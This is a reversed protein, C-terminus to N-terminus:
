AQSAVMQAGAHALNKERGTSEATPTPDLDMMSEAWALENSGDSPAVGYHSEVAAMHAEHPDVSHAYSPPVFQAPQAIPHHFANPATVTIPTIPTSASHRVAHRDQSPFSSYSSRGFAFPQTSYSRQTPGDSHHAFVPKADRSFNDLLHSPLSSRRLAIRTEEDLSPDQPQHLNRVFAEFTGTNKLDLSPPRLRQLRSGELPEQKVAPPGSSTPSPVSSSSATADISSQPSSDSFSPKGISSSSSTSDSTSDSSSVVSARRNAANSVAVSRRKVKNPGRMKREPAYECTLGRVRCRQCTPHEGSCKAKRARCKECAQATRVRPHEPARQFIGTIPDLSGSMTWSPQPEPIRPEEQQQPVSWSGGSPVFISPASPFLLMNANSGANQDLFQPRPTEQELVDDADPYLQQPSTSRIPAPHPLPPADHVLHPQVMGYEDFVPISQTWPNTFVHPDDHIFDSFQFPPPHIFSSRNPIPGSHYIDFGDYPMSSRRASATSIELLPDRPNYHPHMHHGADDFPLHYTTM